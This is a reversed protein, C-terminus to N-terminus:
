QALTLASCLDKTPSQQSPCLTHTSPPTEVPGNSVKFERAPPSVPDAGLSSHTIISPWLVYIMHTLHNEVKVENKSSSKMRKHKMELEMESSAQERPKIHHCVAVFPQLPKSVSSQIIEGEKKLSVFSSFTLFFFFCLLVISLNVLINEDHDFCKGFDDGVERVEDLGSFGHGFM